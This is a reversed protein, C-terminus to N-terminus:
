STGVDAPALVEVLAQAGRALRADRTVLPSSVLTAAAVYEADYTKAWGLRVATAYLRPYLEPDRVVAIPLGLLRTHAALAEPMPIEGRFALERIVSTAESWLLPPALLEHGALPGQDGALAMEVAVTADIVLRV